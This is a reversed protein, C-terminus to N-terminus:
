IRIGTSIPRHFREQFIILLLFLSSHLQIESFGFLFVNRVWSEM